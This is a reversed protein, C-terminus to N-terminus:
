LISFDYVRRQGKIIDNHEVKLLFKLCPCDIQRVQIMM